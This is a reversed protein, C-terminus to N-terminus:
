KSDIVLQVAQAYAHHIPAFLSEALFSYDHSAMIWREVAFAFGTM